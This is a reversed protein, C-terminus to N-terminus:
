LWEYVHCSTDSITPSRLLFGYISISCIISRKTAAMSFISTFRYSIFAPWSCRFSSIRAPWSFIITL